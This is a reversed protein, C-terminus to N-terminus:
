HAQEDDEESTVVPADDVEEPYDAPDPVVVGDENATPAAKEVVEEADKKKTM